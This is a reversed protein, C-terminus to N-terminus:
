LAELVTCLERTFGGWGDRDIALKTLNRLAAEEKQQYASQKKSKFDEKKKFTKFHHCDSFLLVPLTVVHRGKSKTAEKTNCYYFMAM